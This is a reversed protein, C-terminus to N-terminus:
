GDAQSGALHLAKPGYAAMSVDLAGGAGLSDCRRAM